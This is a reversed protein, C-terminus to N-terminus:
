GCGGYIQFSAYVPAEESGRIHFFVYDYGIGGLSIKIPAEIDTVDIPCNKLDDTVNICTLTANYKMAQIFSNELQILDYKQM